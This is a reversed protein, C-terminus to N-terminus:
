APVLRRLNALALAAGGDALEGVGAIRPIRRASAESAVTTAAPSPLSM